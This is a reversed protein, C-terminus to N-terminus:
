GSRAALRPVLLCRSAGQGAAASTRLALISQPYRLRRRWRHYPPPSKVFVASFRINSVVPDEPDPTSVCHLKLAEFERTHFASRKCAEDFPEREFYGSFAFMACIAKALRVHASATQRYGGSTLRGTFSSRLDLSVSRIATSFVSEGRKYDGKNYIGSIGAIRM